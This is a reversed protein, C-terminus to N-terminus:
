IVGKTCVGRYVRAELSCNKGNEDCLMGIFARVYKGTVRDLVLTEGGIDSDEQYASIFKDTVNTITYNYVGLTMRKKVLDIILDAVPRGDEAVCKLKTPEDAARLPLVLIASLLLTAITKM